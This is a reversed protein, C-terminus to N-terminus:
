NAQTKGLTIPVTLRAGDRIIKLNIVVGPKKSEIYDLLDDLTEIDKGDIGVILDAKSRDISRYEIAGARQIIVKPGKIGAREAPGDPELQTVLLGQGTEYVQLIGINSRIVYGYTILDNIIRKVINIPIAFGIGSSQGVKSVIATNVGIVQGTNNLLPGGSNGPNIAADTQIIGKILRGSESRLSRGLSSIVGTTLTRELGFPNGIALVKQGVKLGTSSGLQVPYLKNSPIKIKIVALDNSPDVGVLSANYQQGNYLTVVFEKANEVVHYNTVIHGKNDIVFGSGSGETPVALLFFEDVQYGHTTINIVSKNVKEYVDINNKEDQLFFKEQAFVFHCNFVISLLLIPLLKNLRALLNYNKEQM